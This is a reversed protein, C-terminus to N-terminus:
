EFIGACRMRDLNGYLKDITADNPVGDFFQLEGIPTEVKNPMAIADMTKKPIQALGFNSSLVASSGVAVYMLMQARIRNKM